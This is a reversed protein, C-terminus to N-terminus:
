QAQTKPAETANTSIYAEVRRDLQLQAQSKNKKMKKSAAPWAEIAIQEDAVGKDKLIAAVSEARERALKDNLAKDGRPDAFGSLTVKAKPDATLTQALSNINDQYRSDVDTQNSGFYAVPGKITIDPRTSVVQQQQNSAMATKEGELQKVRALADQREQQQQAYGEIHGDWTKIQDQLSIAQETITQARVAKEKAQKLLEGRDGKKVDGDTSTKWLSVGEKFETEARDMTQPLQDDVDQKDAREMAAKASHFEQPASDPLSACSILGLQLGFVMLGSQISVYRM